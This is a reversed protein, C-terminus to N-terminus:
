ERFALYLLMTALVTTSVVFTLRFMAIRAKQKLAAELKPVEELDFFDPPPTRIRLTTVDDKQIM